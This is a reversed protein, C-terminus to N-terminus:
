SMARLKEGHTAANCLFMQRLEKALDDRSLDGHIRERIKESFWTLIEEQRERFEEPFRVDFFNEVFQFHSRLTRSLAALCREEDDRGTANIYLSIMKDITRHQDDIDPLGTSHIFHRM